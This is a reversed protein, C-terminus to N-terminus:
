DLDCYSLGEEDEDLEDVLCVFIFDYLGVGSFLCFDEVNSSSCFWVMIIVDGYTGQIVIIIFLIFISDVLVQKM